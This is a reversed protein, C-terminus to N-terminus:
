GPEHEAAFQAIWAAMLDPHSRLAWHSGPVERRCLSPAMRAAADYYAPSIFRDGTPVILQVPAHAPALPNRHVLRHPINRRYLNAGHLGDAGVTPAPYADDVPLREM